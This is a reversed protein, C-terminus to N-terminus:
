EEDLIRAREPRLDPKLEVVAASEGATKRRAAQEVYPDILDAPTCDLIDCLAILVKMSLREPKDTVLRYV